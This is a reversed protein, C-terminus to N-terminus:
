PNRLQLNKVQQRAAFSHKLLQAAGAYHKLRQATSAYNRLRPAGGSPLGPRLGRPDTRRLSQARSAPSLFAM